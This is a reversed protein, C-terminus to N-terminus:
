YYYNHPLFKLLLIFLTVRQHESHVLFAAAETHKQPGVPIIELSMMWESYFPWVFIVNGAELIHFVFSFPERPVLLM